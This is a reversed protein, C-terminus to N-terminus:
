SDMFSRFIQIRPRLMRSQLAIQNTLRLYRRGGVPGCGFEGFDGFPDCKSQSSGM